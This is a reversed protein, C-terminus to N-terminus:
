TLCKKIKGRSLFQLIKIPKHSALALKKKKSKLLRILSFYIKVLFHTITIVNYDRQM